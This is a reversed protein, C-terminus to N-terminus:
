RGASGVTDSRASPRRGPVRDDGHVGGRTGVREERLEEGFEPPEDRAESPVLDLEDPAVALNLRDLGEAVREGVLREVRDRETAAGVKPRDEHVHICPFRGIHQDEQRVALAGRGRPRWRVRGQPNERM